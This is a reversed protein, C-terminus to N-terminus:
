TKEQKNTVAMTDNHKQLGSLIFCVTKSMSYETEVKWWQNIEYNLITGMWNSDPWKRKHELKSQVDKLESTLM